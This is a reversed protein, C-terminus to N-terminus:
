TAFKGLHLHISDLLSGIGTGDADPMLSMADAGAGGVGQQGPDSRPGDKLEAM